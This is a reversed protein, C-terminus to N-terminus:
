IKKSFYEKESVIYSDVKWDEIALDPDNIYLQGEDKKSYFGTM